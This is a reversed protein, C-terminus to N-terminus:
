TASTGTAEIAGADAKRYGNDEALGYLTEGFNMGRERARQALGRVDAQMMARVENPDDVGMRRIQKERAAMLHAMAQQYDPTQAAFAAEQTMGWRELESLAQQQATQQTLHTTGTEVKTVQQRVNQLEERLAEFNRQIFAAPDTNFDPMPKPEPRAAPTAAADVHAQAANALLRLREEARAVDAAYKRELEQTAKEAKRRREREEDLARKDVLKQEPPQVAPKEPVQETETEQTPTRPEPAEVPEPMPGAARDDAEMQKFQALEEASLTDLAASM